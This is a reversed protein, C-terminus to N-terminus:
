PLLIQELNHVISIKQLLQEQENRRLGADIAEDSNEPDPFTNLAPTWELEGLIRFPDTSSFLPAIEQERKFPAYSVLRRSVVITEFLTDALRLVSRLLRFYVEKKQPDEVEGFSYKLINRYTERHNELQNLYDINHSEEALEQLLIFAERLRKETILRCCRTYKESFVNYDM